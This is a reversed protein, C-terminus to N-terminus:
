RVPDAGRGAEGIGPEGLGAEARLGAPDLLVLGSRGQRAVLSRRELDRIVRGTMERTAGALDALEPRSLLPRDRDFLLDRQVWLIRALRRSVSDFTMRDIRQLLGEAGALALGLLDLGLGADRRALALVLDGRWLAVLGDDLGVLDVVSPIGHMAVVNILAGPAAIRVMHRQGDPDSRWGGLHGAIVLIVLSADDQAAVLDHRAFARLRAGRVLAERTSAGSERLLGDVASALGARSDTSVTM